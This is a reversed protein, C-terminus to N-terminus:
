QIAQIPIVSCQPCPCGVLKEGSPAEIEGLLADLTIQVREDTLRYYVQLGDKRSAVLGGERLSM